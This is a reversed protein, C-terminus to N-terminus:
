SQFNRLFNRICKRYNEQRHTKSEPVAIQCHVEPGTEKRRNKMKEQGKTKCKRSVNLKEFRSVKMEGIM